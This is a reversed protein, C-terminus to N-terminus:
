SPLLDRYSVLAKIAALRCGPNICVCRDAVIVLEEGCMLCVPPGDSSGGNGGRVQAADIPAWFRAADAALVPGVDKPPVVATTMCM